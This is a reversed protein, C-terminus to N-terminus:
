IQRTVLLLASTGLLKKNSSTLCKNSSAICKNRTKGSSFSFARCQEVLIGQQFSLHVRFVVPHLLREPHWERPKHSNEPTHRVKSKKSWNVALNWDVFSLVEIKGLPKRESEHSRREIRSVGEPAVFVPKMAREASVPKTGDRLMESEFSAITESGTRCSGFPNRERREQQNREMEWGDWVWWGAGRDNVTGVWRGVDVAETSDSDWDKSDSHGTGPHPRSPASTPPLEVKADSLGSWDMQPVLFPVSGM